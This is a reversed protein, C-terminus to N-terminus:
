IKRAFFPISSSSGTSTPKSSKKKHNKAVTTTKTKTTAGSRVDGDKGKLVRSWKLISSGNWAGTEVDVIGSSSGHIGDLMSSTLAAPVFISQWLRVIHQAAAFVINTNQKSNVTTGAAGVEKLFSSSPTSFSKEYMSSVKQTAPHIKETMFFHSGHHVATTTMPAAFTSRFNQEPHDVDNRPVKTTPPVLHLFSRFRVLAIAASSSSLSPLSAVVRKRQQHVNDILSRAITEIKPGDYNEKVFSFFASLHEVVVPFTKKAFTRSLTQAKKWLFQGSHVIVQGVLEKTSTPIHGRSDNVRGGSCNNGDYGSGSGGNVVGRETLFADTKKVLDALDIPIIRQQQQQQQHQLHHPHLELRRSHSSSHHDGCSGDRRGGSIAVMSTGGSKRTVTEILNKSEEDDILQINKGAASASSSSSSSSSSSATAVKLAEEAQKLVDDISDLDLDGFQTKTTTTTHQAVSRPVSPTYAFVGTTTMTTTTSPFMMMAM